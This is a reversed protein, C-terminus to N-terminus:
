NVSTNFFGSPYMASDLAEYIEFYNKSLAHDIALRGGADREWVDLEQLSLLYLLVRGSGYFASLHLAPKGENIIGHISPLASIAEKLLVLNDSKIARVLQGAYSETADIVDSM